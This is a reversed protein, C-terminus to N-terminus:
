PLRNVRRSGSANFSLVAIFFHSLIYFTFVSLTEYLLKEHAFHVRSPTCDARSNGERLDGLKKRTAEFYVGAMRLVKELQASTLLCNTKCLTARKKFEAGRM